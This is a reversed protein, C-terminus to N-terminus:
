HFIAGMWWSESAYVQVMGITEFKAPQKWTEGDIKNLTQMPPPFILDNIKNEMMFAIETRVLFSFRRLVLVWDNLSYLKGKFLFKRWDSSRIRELDDKWLRALVTGWIEISTTSRCFWYLKHGWFLVFPSLLWCFHRWQAVGAWWLDQLMLAPLGSMLWSRATLDPM